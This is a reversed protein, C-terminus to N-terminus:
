WAREITTKHDPDVTITMTEDKGAVTNKLRLRHRGAPVDDLVVPTQDLEKGDLWVLAWPTVLVSLKGTRNNSGTRTAPPPAQVPKTTPMSPQATTRRSGDPDTNLPPAANPPRPNGAAREPSDHKTAVVSPGGSNVPADRVSADEPAMTAREHTVPSADGGAPRPAAQRSSGDGPAELKTNAIPREPSRTVVVDTASGAAVVGPAPDREFASGDNRATIPAGGRRYIMFFSAVAVLAFFAVGLVVLTPRRSHLAPRAHAPLVVMPPPESTPPNPTPPKPGSLQTTSILVAPLENHAYPRPGPTGGALDIEAAMVRSPERAGPVEVAAYKQSSLGTPLAALVPAPLGRSEPATVAQPTATRPSAGAARPRAQPTVEVVPRVTGPPQLLRALASPSLAGSAGKSSAALAEVPAPSDGAVLQPELLALARGSVAPRPLTQAHPPASVVWRPVVDKLIETGTPQGEEDPIACALAVALEHMSPRRDPRLSFCRLLLTAVAGPMVDEPPPTPIETRQKHYLVGATELYGWPHEGTLLQWMIVGLSFVDARGTAVVANDVQEPAMYRPTGMSMGSGTHVEGQTIVKAVGFDLVKVRDTVGATPDTEILLNEPKLDRHVVGRGHAYELADCVQFVLYAAERLALRGSRAQVYADLSQGEIFEFRQFMQGAAPGATDDLVGFNQLKVINDHKLRSVAETELRFRSIAIPLRAVEPLMLKIVCKVHALGEHEALYVAGQGGRGLLVKLIFHRDVRQGLMPDAPMAFPFLFEDAM